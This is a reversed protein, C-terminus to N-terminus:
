YLGPRVWKGEHSDLTRVAGSYLHDLEGLLALDYINVGKACDGWHIITEKGDMQWTPCSALKEGAKGYFDIVVPVPTKDGSSAFSAKVHHTDSTYNGAHFLVSESTEAFDLVLTDTVVGHTGAALRTYPGYWTRVWGVDDNPVNDVGVPFMPIRANGMPKLFRFCVAGDRQNPGDSGGPQGVCFEWVRTNMQNGGPSIYFYFTSPANPAPPPGNFHPPTLPLYFPSPDNVSGYATNGWDVYSNGGFDYIAGEWLVPGTSHSQLFVYPVMGAALIEQPTLGAFSFAAAGDAASLMISYSGDAQQTGWQVNGDGFTLFEPTVYVITTAMAVAATLVLLGIAGVLSFLRKKTFM